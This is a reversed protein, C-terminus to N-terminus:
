DDGISEPQNWDRDKTAKLYDTMRQNSETNWDKRFNILQSGTPDNKINDERAHYARQEAVVMRSQFKMLHWMERIAPTDNEINPNARIFQQWEQVSRVAANGENAQRMGQTGIYLMLKAMAQTKTTSGGLLADVKDQPVGARVAWRGIDTITEAGRGTISGNLLQEGKQINNLFRQNYDATTDLAPGYEQASTLQPGAQRTTLQPTAPAGGAAGGPFGQSPPLAGGPAPGGMGMGGAGMQPAVGGMVSSKWGGYKNNYQDTFLAPDYTGNFDSLARRGQENGLAFQGMRQKLEPGKLGAWQTLLAIMDKQNGDKIGGAAMVDGAFPTLQDGSTINPNKTAAAAFQGMIGMRKEYGQLEANMTEANLLKMQAVNNMFEAAAPATEPHSAVLAGAKAWDTVGNQDTAQQVLPGIAQRARFLTNQNMMNQTAALRSIMEIPNQSAMANGQTLINADIGQVPPMLQEKSAAM